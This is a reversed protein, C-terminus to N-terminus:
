CISCAASGRARHERLLARDRAPVGARLHRRLRSVSRPDARHRAPQAALAVSRRLEDVLAQSRPDALMRRVQRELVAPDAAQGREALDLLEDDPISSWLFFSLRSALRPRQDPLRRRRSAPPDREIRFLFAPSVLFRQLALEIGADFGGEARGDQYFTSCGDVDADTM